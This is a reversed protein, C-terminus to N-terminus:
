SSSIIRRLCKRPPFGLRTIIAKILKPRHLKSLFQCLGPQEYIELLRCYVGYSNVTPTSHGTSHQRDHELLADIPLSTLDPVPIAAVTDMSTHMVQRAVFEVVHGTTDIIDQLIERIPTFLTVTLAAGGVRGWLMGYVEHTEEDVILGGSDGEVGIGGEIWDHIPTEPRKIVGWEETVYSSEHYAASRTTSIQGLQYGSTRGSSKVFAGPVPSAGQCLRLEDSTPPWGSLLEAQNSLATEYPKFVEFLAWDMERSLPSQPVTRARRGSM